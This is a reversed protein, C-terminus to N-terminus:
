EVTKGLIKPVFILKKDVLTSLSPYMVFSLSCVTGESICKSTSFLMVGGGSIYGRFM